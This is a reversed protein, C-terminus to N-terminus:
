AEFQQRHKMITPLNKSAWATLEQVIPVLEAGIPTLSYEVHPPIKPYVKLVILDDAELTRLVTYIPLKLLRKDRVGSKIRNRKTKHALRWARTEREEMDPCDSQGSGEPNRSVM